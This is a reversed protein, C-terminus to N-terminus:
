EAGEEAASGQTRDVRGCTGAGNVSLFLGAATMAYVVCPLRPHAVVNFIVSTGFGDSPAHTFRAGGDTSVFIGDGKLIYVRGDAGVTVRHVVQGVLDVSAATWTEGGDVSKTLGPGWPPSGVWGVAFLTDHDRPVVAFYNLEWFGATTGLEWTLGGDRTRYLRESFSAAYVDLASNAVISAYRLEPNSVTWARGRDVSKHLGRPDVAWLVSANGPSVASIGPAPGLERLTVGANRTVHLSGDLMVYATGPRNPDTVPAGVRQAAGEATALAWHRGFSWTVFLDSTTSLYAVNPLYADFAILSNTTGRENSQLVLTWPSSTQLAETQVEVEATKEAPRDTQEESPADACGMLLLLFSVLAHRCRSQRM